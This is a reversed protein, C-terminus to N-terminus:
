AHSTVPLRFFRPLYTNINKVFLVDNEEQRVISSPKMDPFDPTFHFKIERINRCPINSIVEHFLMKRTCIVDYIHLKEGEIKYILVANEQPSYYVCDSFTHLCHFLLIGKSQEVDIKRSLLAKKEYLGCILEMDESSGPDLKRLPSASNSVDLRLSYSSERVMNFGFKPYFNLVSENAFLYIVDATSEYEELVKNLLAAALGKNRFEPATMVTGIQVANMKQGEIVIDLESASVNAAIEGHDFYSYCIFSDDWYGKAYWEEFNIGFVKLALDSFSRRYSDTEKYDSLFRLEDM